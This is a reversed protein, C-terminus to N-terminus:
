FSCHFHQSSPGSSVDSTPRCALFCQQTLFFMSLLDLVRAIIPFGSEMPIGVLIYVFSACLSLFLFSTAQTMPFQPQFAVVFAASLCSSIIMSRCKPKGESAVDM